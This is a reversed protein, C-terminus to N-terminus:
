TVLGLGAYKVLRDGHFWVHVPGDSSDLGATFYRICEGSGDVEVWISSDLWACAERTMVSGSKLGSRTFTDANERSTTECGALVGAFLLFCLLSLRM